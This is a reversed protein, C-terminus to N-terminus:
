SSIAEVEERQITEHRKLQASLTRIRDINDKERSRYREKVDKV